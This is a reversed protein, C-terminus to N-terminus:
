FWLHESDRQIPKSVEECLIWLKIPRGDRPGSVLAVPILRHRLVPDHDSRIVRVKSSEPITAALRNQPVAPGILEDGGLSRDIIVLSNLLLHTTRLPRRLERPKKERGSDAM